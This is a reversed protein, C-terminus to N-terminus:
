GRIKIRYIESNYCNQKFFNSLEYVFELLNCLTVRVFWHFDCRSDCWTAVLFERDCNNHLMQTVSWTFEFCMSWRNQSFHCRFPLANECIKKRNHWLFWFTWLNNTIKYNPKEVYYIQVSQHLYSLLKCKLVTLSRQVQLIIDQSWRLKNKFNEKDSSYNPQPLLKM